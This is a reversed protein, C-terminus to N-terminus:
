VVEERVLGVEGVAVTVHIVEEEAVVEHGGEGAGGDLAFVLEALAGGEGEALDEDGGAAVGLEFVADDAHGGVVVDEDAVGEAVVEVDEAFDGEVGDHATVEGVDAIGFGARFDVLERIFVVGAFQHLEEGDAEPLEVGVAGALEVGAVGDGGVGVGFYGLEGADEGAEPETVVVPALATVGLGVVSNVEGEVGVAVVEAGFCEDAAVGDGGAGGGGLVGPAIDFVGEDMQQLVGVGGGEDAALEDLEEDGVVWGGVVDLADGGEEDVIAAADAAVEGGDDGGEEEVGFGAGGAGVGDRGFEAAEFFGDDAGHGQASGEAQM